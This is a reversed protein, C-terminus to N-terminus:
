SIKIKIKFYNFIKTNPNFHCFQISLGLGFDLISKPNDIVIWDVSYSQLGSQAIWDLLVRGVLSTWTVFQSVVKWALDNQLTVLMILMVRNLKISSDGYFFTTTLIHTVLKQGPSTRSTTLLSMSTSPPEKFIRFFLFHSTM